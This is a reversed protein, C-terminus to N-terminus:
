SGFHTKGTQLNRTRNKKPKKFHGRSQEYRHLFKSWLPFFAGPHELRNALKTVLFHLWKNMHHFSFVACDKVQQKVSFRVKRRSLVPEAAPRIEKVFNWRKPCTCPIQPESMKNSLFAWSFFRQGFCFKVKGTSQVVEDVQLQGKHWNWQQVNM